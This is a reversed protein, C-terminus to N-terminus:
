KVLFFGFILPCVAPFLVYIFRRSYAGEEHFNDLFYKFSIAITQNLVSNEGITAFATEAAREFM